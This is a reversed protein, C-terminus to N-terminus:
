DVEVRDFDVLGSPYTGATLEGSVSDRLACAQREYARLRSISDRSVGFAM